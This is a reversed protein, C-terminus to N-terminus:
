IFCKLHSANSYFPLNWCTVYGRHLLGNYIVSTDNVLVESLRWGSVLWIPKCVTIESIYRHRQEFLISFDWSYMFVGFQPSVAIRFDIHEHAFHILYKKFVPQKMSAAMKFNKNEPVAAWKASKLCTM